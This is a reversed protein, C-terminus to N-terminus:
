DQLAARLSDLRPGFREARGLAGRDIPRAVQAASITGVERRAEHPRLAAEDFPLGAADLLRRIWPEPDAVLEAWPLKLMADGAAAHSAVMLDAYSRFYAALDELRAVYPHLKPDLDQSWCSLCIDVPDREVHIMRAGPLMWRIFGVLEHNELSKDAICIADRRRGDAARGRAREIYAEALQVRLPLPLSPLLEWWPGPRGAARPVIAMALHMLDHTEGGGFGQPHAHLIQEVLTSGCRPMGFVFTLGAGLDAPAASDGDPLPRELFMAIAAHRRRVDDPDFPPADIANGDRYDAMAADVDGVREHARGRALHMARRTSPPLGNMSEIAHGVLAIVDDARREREYARVLVGVMGPTADGRKVWPEILAIARDTRGMRELADGRGATAQDWGPQLREAHEFAALADRYRGRILLSNGFMCRLGAHKPAAAIAREYWQGALDYRARAMEIRGMARLADPDRSRRKLQETAAREVEAFRRQRLLGDIREAFEASGPRAM